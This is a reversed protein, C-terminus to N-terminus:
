CLPGLSNRQWDIGRAPLSPELPQQVSGWQQGGRCAWGSSHRPPPADHHLRSAPTQPKLDADPATAAPCRQVARGRVADAPVHMCMTLTRARAATAQPFAQTRLLRCGNPHLSALPLQQKGTPAQSARLAPPRSRAPTCRQQKQQECCVIAPQVRDSHVSAGARASNQIPSAAWAPARVTGPRAPPRAASAHHQGAAKGDKSSEQRLGYCKM